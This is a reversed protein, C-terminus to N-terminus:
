ARMTDLARYAVQHSAEVAALSRQFEAAAAADGEPFMAERERLMGEAARVQAFQRSADDWRALVVRALQQLSLGSAPGSCNVVVSELGGSLYEHANARGSIRRAEDASIGRDYIRALVYDLAAQVMSESFDRKVQVRSVGARECITSAESFVPGAVPGDLWAIKASGADCHVAFKCAPFRASLRDKIATTMERASMVRPIELSVPKAAFRGAAMAPLTPRELAATPKPAMAANRQMLAVRRLQYEHWMDACEQPTARPMDLIAWEPGTIVDPSVRRTASGDSWLVELAEGRRWTGRAQEVFVVTGELGPLQTCTLRRGLFHQSM